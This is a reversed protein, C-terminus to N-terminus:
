EKGELESLRAELSSIRDELVSIEYNLQDALGYLYSKASQMNQENTKNVVDISPVDFAM